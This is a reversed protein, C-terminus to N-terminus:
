RYAYRERLPPTLTFIPRQRCRLLWRQRLRPPTPSAIAARILLAADAYRPPLERRPCRLAARRPSMDPSVAVRCRMASHRDKLTDPLARPARCRILTLLPM